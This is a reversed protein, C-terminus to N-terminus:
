GWWQKSLCKNLHLDFFVDFSWTVPRQAPFERTVLSNGVCLVLLASFTEMQHHWWPNLNWQNKGLLGILMIGANTWFIAQCRGRLLGNDSSIITTLKITRIHTVQGWHTLNYQIGHNDMLNVWQNRTIFILFSFLRTCFCIQYGFNQSGVTKTVKPCLSGFNTALMLKSKWWKTLVPSATPERTLHSGILTTMGELISLNSHNIARRNCIAGDM